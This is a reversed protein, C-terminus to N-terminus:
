AHGKEREFPGMPVGGLETTRGVVRLERLPCVSRVRVGLMGFMLATDCIHPAGQGREVRQSGPYLTSQIKRLLAPCPLAFCPLTSCNDTTRTILHSAAMSGATPHARGISCVMGGGEKFLVRRSPERVYM